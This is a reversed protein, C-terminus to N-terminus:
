RITIKKGGTIYIGKKAQNVKMGMINYIPNSTANSPVTPINVIGTESGVKQIYLYDIWKSTNSNDAELTLTQEENVVIEDTVYENIGKKNSRFSYVINDGLKFKYRTYKDEDDNSSGAAVTLKYIGPQLTTITVKDNIIGGAAGSSWHYAYYESQKKNSVNKTNKPHYQINDLNEGEIFYIVNNITKQYSITMDNTGRNPTFITAYYPETENATTEYLNTGDLIYKPYSFSVPTATDQAGSSLISDRISTTVQYTCYVPAADLMAQYNDKKEGSLLLNILYQADNKVHQNHQHARYYSILEEIYSYIKDEIGLNITYYDKNQKGGGTVANNSLSYSSGDTIGPINITLERFQHKKYRPMKVNFSLIGNEFVVDTIISKNYLHYYEWVEDAGAVWYKDSPQVIDKLYNLFISSIGHTGGLIMLTGDANDIKNQFEEEKDQFFFRATTADPKNDFTTWDKGTTWDDIKVNREEPYDPLKGNQFINWCIENSIKGADIYNHNGNPEVMVKLGIGVIDKWKDSLEKFRSAIAESDTTYGADVDHQAFSWGTRIMTKADSGHIHTYNTGDVEYPWIASTATFRRIGGTGDSYTLPQHSNQKLKKNQQSYEILNYPCNLFDDGKSIYLYTNKDFTPYGNFFAWNNVLESRGMDDSTLVLPCLKNYKVRAFMPPKSTDYSPANIKINVVDYFIDDIVEVTQSYVPLSFLFSICTVYRIISTLSSKNNKGHSLSKALCYKM